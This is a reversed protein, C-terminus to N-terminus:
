TYVLAPHPDVTYNRRILAVAERSNHSQRVVVFEVNLLAAALMVNHFDKKLCELKISRLIRNREPPPSYGFPYSSICVLDNNVGFTTVVSKDVDRIIRHIRSKVESMPKAEWLPFDLTHNVKAM